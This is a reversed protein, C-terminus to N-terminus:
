VEGLVCVDGHGDQYWLHSDSLSPYPLLFNTGKDEKENYRVFSDIIKGFVQYTLSHELM